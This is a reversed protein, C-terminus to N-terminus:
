ETQSGETALGQILGAPAPNSFATANPTGWATVGHFPSTTKFKVILRSGAPGSKGGAPYNKGSPNSGNLGASDCALNGLSLPIMILLVRVFSWSPKQGDM